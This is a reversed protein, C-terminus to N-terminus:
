EKFESVAEDITNFVKLIKSLEVLAHIVKLKQSDAVLIISGNELRLRKTLLIITGLFTSDMFECKSLDIIFEKHGQHINILTFERFVKAEESAARIHNVRVITARSDNRRIFTFPNEDAQRKLIERYNREEFENLEFQPRLNSVDYKQRLSNTDINKNNLPSQM